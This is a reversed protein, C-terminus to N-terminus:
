KVPFLISLPDDVDIYANTEQAISNDSPSTEVSADQFPKDEIDGNVSTGINTNTVSPSSSSIRARNEQQQLHLAKEVALDFLYESIKIKQAKDSLSDFDTIQSRFFNLLTAHLVKEPRFHLRITVKDESM